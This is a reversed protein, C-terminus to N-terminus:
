SLTETQPLCLVSEQLLPACEDVRVKRCLQRRQTSFLLIFKTMNCLRQKLHRGVVDVIPNTDGGIHQYRQRGVCDFRAIRQRRKLLSYTTEECNGDRM